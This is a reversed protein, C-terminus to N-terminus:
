VRARAAKQFFSWIYTSTDFDDDIPWEHSGGDNTVLEITTSGNCTQYVQNSYPGKTFTNVADGQCGNRKGWDAFDTPVPPFGLAENGDYPVVVDANGHVHLVPVPKNFAAYQSDCNQEGEDNGPDLV